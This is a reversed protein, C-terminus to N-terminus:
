LLFVLFFFKKNGDQLDTVFIAPDPTVDPVLDPDCSVLIDRTLLVPQKSQKKETSPQCLFRFNKITLTIPATL